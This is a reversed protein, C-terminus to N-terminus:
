SYGGLSIKWSRTTKGGLNGQMQGGGIGTIEDPMRDPYCAAIPPINDIIFDAVVMGGVFRCSKKGASGIIQVTVYPAYVYGYFSNEKVEQYSGSMTTYRKALNITTNESVSILYINTNPYVIDGGNYKIREKWQPLQNLVRDVTPKDLRNSCFGEVGTAGSNYQALKDRTFEYEECVDCYTAVVGHTPCIIETLNRGCGTIKCQQQSLNTYYSCGDGKKCDKHILATVMSWPEMQVGDFWVENGQNDGKQDHLVNGNKLNGCHYCNVNKSKWSGDADLYQLNETYDYGGLMVFWSYHLTHQFDNDQYSVGDDLDLIVSGRGKVLVLLGADKNYNDEPPVWAFLKADSANATRKGLMDLYGKLKIILVNDEDDGTDLIVSIPAPGTNATGKFGDITFIKGVHNATGNKATECNNDYALTFTSTLAPVGDRPTNTGNLKIKVTEGEAYKEDSIVWKGYARTATRSSLEAAVEEVSMGPANEDWKPFSTPDNHIVGGIRPGQWQSSTQLTVTGNVYIGHFSINGGCTTSGLTLNGNVHLNISSYDVNGNFYCDGLIYVDVIGAGKTINDGADKTFSRPGKTGFDANGGVMIRSGSMLYIDDNNNQEQYFNGRIAWTTPHLYPKFNALNYEGMTEFGKRFVVSGGTSFDGVLALPSGLYPGIYTVQTDCFLSTLFAGRDVVTDNPLYGTTTFIEFNGVGGSGEEGSESYGFSLHVADKNGEVSSVVCIDYFNNGDEDQRLTITVSYAGLQDIDEETANANNPDLSAFKDATTTICDGPNQLETMKAYLEQAAAGAGSDPNMADALTNFVITAISQASQNAQVQNFVAYQSTTATTMSCYMAMCSILLATMTSIVMFLASGRNSLCKKIFHVM